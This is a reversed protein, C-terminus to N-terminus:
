DMLPQELLTRNYNIWFQPDRPIDHLYLPKGPDIIQITDSEELKGVHIENVFFERYLNLEAIEDPTLLKFYNMFSIYKLLLKDGYQKYELNLEFWKKSELRRSVFYAYSMKLIAYDKMRIFLEGEVSVHTYMYREGPVIRIVVVEEDDVHTYYEIEFAYNGSAFEQFSGIFPVQERYNRIPNHFQMNLFENGEFTPMVGHILLKTSDSGPDTVYEFFIQPYKNSYRMQAIGMTSKHVSKGIGPDEVAIAAELFSIYENNKKLYDRYYGALINSKEDYNKGIRKLAKEVIRRGTVRNDSIVLEPLVATQPELLIDFERVGVLDKVRFRFTHYGIASACLTDSQLYEPINFVYFGDVNAVTGITKGCVGVHAFSVPDGTEADTVTGQLTIVQGFSAVEAVLLFISFIARM